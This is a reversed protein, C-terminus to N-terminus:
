AEKLRKGKLRFRDDYRGHNHRQCCDYCAVAQRFRRVRHIQSGCAPCEYVLRKRVRRPEFPLTHCRSEDPIGLDVCAQRWEAGHAAIRRRGARHYAVIHALEHRLTRDVESGVDIGELTLLRPNLEIRFSEYFARGAATRMRPNWHVSVKKALRPLGVQAVLRSAQRTLALETHIEALLERGPPHHAELRPSKRVRDPFPPTSMRGTSTRRDPPPSTEGPASFDFEGFFELQCPVGPDPM